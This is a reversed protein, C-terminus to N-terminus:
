WNLQVKYYWHHSLSRQSIFPAPLLVFAAVAYSYVVFVHYSMGNLTAAKFLTILGVGTCEVTAMAVFPLVDRYCYGGNM